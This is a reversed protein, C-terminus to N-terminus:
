AILQKTRVTAREIHCKTTLNGYHVFNSLPLLLLGMKRPRRMPKVFSDIDTTVL